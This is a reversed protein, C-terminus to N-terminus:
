NSKAAALPKRAATGPRRPFRDGPPRVQTAVVFCHNRSGAFPVSPVPPAIEMGLLATADAAGALEADDLSGKWAVMRGGVRLLPAAYELLVNLPAVARACVVDFSARADSGIASYEEVRSWVCEVNPIGAERAFAAAAEMKKRVSDILTFRTGPLAIALALGPLGAGSGIDLIRKAEAVPALELAALSDAIHLKYADAYSRVATGSIELSVCYAALEDLRSCQGRSLAYREALEGPLTDQPNM